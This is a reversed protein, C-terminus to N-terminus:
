ARGEWYVLASRVGQPWVYGGGQYTLRRRLLDLLFEDHESTSEIGFRRKVQELASDLSDSAWPEWLGSDEMQVNPWLGMQLLANYGVQFNPSDYPQGWIRLAAQAMIGDATPARMVMFCTRRTVETMRWVFHAFDPYSYIAHSCLSFDHPEVQAEPWAARVVRVNGVGETALNELLVELMAESPEVVTVQRAIRAMLTTWAGTGAGIDLVTSGPHAKLQAVVAARSSDPTAWRQKIHADFSRARSRWVDAGMEAGGHRRKESCWHEESLERWLCLWDPVQEM